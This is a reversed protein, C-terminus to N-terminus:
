RREAAPRSTAQLAAIQAEVEARNAANPSSRLYLRYHRLAQATDGARRYVNGLQNEITGCTEHDDAPILDLAQRYSGLAANLHELAMRHDALPRAKDGTWAHFAAVLQAQQILGTQLALLGFLLHRDAALASM